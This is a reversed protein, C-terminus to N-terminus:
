ALPQGEAFRSPRFPTIDTFTSGHVITEALARGLGPSCTMGYGGTDAVCFLGEATGLPGLLPFEDPSVAFVGAGGGVVTAERMGPIRRALRSLIWHEYWPAPSPDFRDPDPPPEHPDDAIAVCNGAVVHGDPSTRFYIGNQYDLCNPFPVRLGPPPTLVLVQHRLPRVPLATGALRGLSATWAGGALVVVPADIPGRECDVGVVKGDWTRVRTVPALQYLRVGLDQARQMLAITVSRPDIYGSSPSSSAVAIDDLNWDRALGAIAAREVIRTEHGAAQMIAVSRELAARGSAPVLDLCGVQRVAPEGGIEGTWDRYFDAAAKFLAASGPHAGVLPNNWAVVGSSRGSAGSAIGTRDLVLVQKVGARALFYAVSAGAIGAGVVLVDVREM